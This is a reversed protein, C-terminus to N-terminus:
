RLNENIKNLWQRDINVIKFPLEIEYNNRIFLFIKSFFEQKLNIAEKENFNHNRWIEIIRRPLYFGFELNNITITWFDLKRREYHFQAFLRQGNLLQHSPNETNSFLFLM